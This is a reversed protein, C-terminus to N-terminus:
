GRDIRELAQALDAILDDADEIGVAYRVLGDSVGIARREAADLEYHSMLAPQEVLSEVGGLSPGMLPIRLADIFAQVGAMGGRVEFSVVGGCGRLQRVAQAHDPHSPLGPYFVTAVAPHAALFRAVRLGNENHQAMRLALTKLGRLLLYACGADVVGGLMGLAERLPGITAQPGVLIGALLDNHGGLYKTASHVVLDAGHELPRLNYPTAFTSDVFLRAGHAHALEATRALDVVRLYPNTPIETFVLRTNPRLNRALAEEDGVPVYSTEVGLRRLFTNAFQRTKRYLDQTVLLHDGPSLLTLLATTVANMGSACLVADEAGELAAMKEEVAWATPNGYRGYEGRQPRGGAQTAEKFARVDDTGEFTYTSTQVIPTTVAHYPNPRAEGAHVSRTSFGPPQQQDM